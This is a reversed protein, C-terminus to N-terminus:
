EKPQAAHNSFLMLCLVWGQADSIDRSVPLRVGLDEFWQYRTIITMAPRPISADRLEDGVRVRYVYCGEVVMSTARLPVLKGDRTKAVEDYTTEAVVSDDEAFSVVRAVYGGRPDYWFRYGLVRPTETTRIPRKARAEYVELGNEETRAHTWSYAALDLADAASLLMPGLSTLGKIPHADPTEARDPTYRALRAEGVAVEASGPELRYATGPSVVYGDPGPPGSLDTITLSAGGPEFHCHAWLTVTRKPDENAVTVKVDYGLRTVERAPERLRAVVEQAEQSLVSRRIPAAPAAAEVRLGQLLLRLPELSQSGLWAETAGAQAAGSTKMKESYAVPAIRWGCEQRVVSLLAGQALSRPLHQARIEILRPPTNAAKLRELEAKAAELDRDMVARAREMAEPTLPKRDFRYYPQDIRDDVWVERARSEAEDAQEETLALEERLRGGFWALLEAFQAKLKEVEDPPPIGSDVIDKLKWRMVERQYELTERAPRPYNSELSRVIAAELAQMMEASFPQHTGGIVALRVTEAVYQREEQTWEATVPVGAAARLTFDALAAAQAEVESSFTTPRAEQALCTRVGLGFVALAAWGSLTM